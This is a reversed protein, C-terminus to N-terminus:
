AYSDFIGDFIGWVGSGSKHVESCGPLIREELNERCYPCSTKKLLWPDLCETHFFHGCVRGKSINEGIEFAHLCIACCPSKKKTKMNNTAKKIKTPTTSSTPSPSVTPRCYITTATGIMCKPITTPNKCDEVGDVHMIGDGKKKNSNNGVDDDEEEEEKILPPEERIEDHEEEKCGDMEKDETEEEKDDESEEEEQYKYKNIALKKPEGDQDLKGESSGFAYQSPGMGHPHHHPRNWPPMFLRLLAHFAVFCITFVLEVGGVGYLTMVAVAFISFAGVFAVLIM